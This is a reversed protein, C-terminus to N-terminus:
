MTKNLLQMNKRVIDTRRKYEKIEKYASSIADNLIGLEGNVDVVQQTMENVAETVEAIESATATKIDTITKPEIAKDM